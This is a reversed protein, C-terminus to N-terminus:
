QRDDENVEGAARELERWRRLVGEVARASSMGLVEAIEKQTYGDITLAVVARTRPEADRLRDRVHFNGAVQVAPDASADAELIVFAPDYSEFQRNKAEARHKRFENPFVELCTGMFYTTLSAGREYQWGSGILARERFRPLAKCVTMNALEDRAGPDRHLEELETDTPHLAFGRFSALSFIYGTRMWARLVGTGYRALEEQFREYQQGAFGHRALEDRLERDGDPAGSGPGSGLEWGAGM